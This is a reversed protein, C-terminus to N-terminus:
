TTSEEEPTPKASASGPNSLPGGAGGTSARVVLEAALTIHRAPSEDGRIRELLLRTCADGLAALPQRATTLPPDSVVAFGVDDFGTVAVDRPVAVGRLRLARLVGLAIMDNACVIADPAPREELLTTGAAEGWDMSFDGELMRPPVGSPLLREVTALFAAARREATSIRREAGVFALRRRGRSILHETTMTIGAADDVGVDDSEVGEVRRDLQVIPVHRAAEAVADVSHHAHCPVIVLGDVRRDLLASIRQAEVEPDNGSDGLLLGHQTDHLSREIAQVVRPFFPNAIDPVVVGVVETAGRRLARAVTDGRYGLEATAKLVARAYEDAVSRNGSLVRSVTATSVGAAKAVDRITV